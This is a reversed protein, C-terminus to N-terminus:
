FPSSFPYRRWFNPNGSGFLHRSHIEDGFLSTERSLIAVLFPRTALFYIKGALFHRRSLTEDSFILM